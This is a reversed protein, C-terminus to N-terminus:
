AAKRKKAAKGSKAKPTVKPKSAKTDLELSDAVDELRGRRPGKTDWQNVTLERGLSLAVVARRLNMPDYPTQDVYDAFDKEEFGKMGLLTAVRRRIEQWSELALGHLALDLLEADQVKSSGVAELIRRLLEERRFREAKAKQERARNEERYKDVSDDSPMGQRNGPQAHHKKCKLDTCVQLERGQEQGDVVLAPVTSKCAKEGEEIETYKSKPLVGKQDAHWRDSVQVVEPRTAKTREIHARVKLAWCPSDLCRDGSVEEFLGAQAGTRKPCSTCAGAAEFLTADEVPFPAKSLDALVATQIWQQLDKVSPVHFWKTNFDPSTPDEDETLDQLLYEKARQQAEPGLPAIALAHGLRIVDADLLKRVDPSLNRLALRQRVYGVSKGVREAITEVTYGPRELLAGFGDAEDLPHVEQRQLNEIIQIELAQDDTVDLIRCPVTVLGADFAAALRRAGAILTWDDPANKRVLLPELVGVEKVSRLLEADAKADQHRRPNTHSYRIDAVPLSQYEPGVRTKPTPKSM